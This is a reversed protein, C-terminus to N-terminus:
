SLSWRRFKNNTCSNLVRVVVNLLPMTSRCQMDVAPFFHLVCMSPNLALVFYHVALAVLYNSLLPCLLWLTM